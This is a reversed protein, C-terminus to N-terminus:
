ANIDRLRERILAPDVGSLKGTLIMRAATIENEIAALYAIVTAGGFNSSKAKAFYQNLSNDCCLEFETLKGGSAAAEGLKAAEAFPTDAYLFAFDEGEQAAHILRDTPVNGGNILANELFDVGRGIRLTRVLARLNAGDISLSVYDTLFPSYLGKAIEAMEEFYARDLIFDALQPNETRKMIRRAEALSIALMPPLASYEEAHYADALVQPPVIGSDSMLYAGDVDASEAKILVKANHYDYKLCFADIAANEPIIQRLEAFVKARHAALTKEVQSASMSSMDEFGCDMLLKAADDFSPVDLMREMRDRTLLKPERANLMASLFLYDYDTIKKNSM